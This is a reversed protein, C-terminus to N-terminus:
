ERTLKKLLISPYFKRLEEIFKQNKKYEKDLNKKHDYYYSLADHVQAFTLHPFQEIIGDPDIGMLEYRMAIDIVKTRTGKIIPSGGCIKPHIIIYPHKTEEKTVVSKM